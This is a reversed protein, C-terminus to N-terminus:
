KRVIKYMNSLLESARQLGLNARLLQFSPLAKPQSIPPPILHEILPLQVFRDIDPTLVLDLHLLVHAGPNAILRSPPQPPQNTTAQASVFTAERAVTSRTSKSGAM